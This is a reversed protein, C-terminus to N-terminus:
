AATRASSAEAHFNFHQDGRSGHGDEGPIKQTSRRGPREGAKLLKAVEDAPLKSKALEDHKAKLKAVLM